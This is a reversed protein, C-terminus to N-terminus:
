PTRLGEGFQELAWRDISDFEFNTNQLATIQLMAMGHVIAWAAYSVSFADFPLTHIEGSDIGEQVLHYLVM